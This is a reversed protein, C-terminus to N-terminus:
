LALPLVSGDFHTHYQNRLRPAGFPIIEGPSSGWRPIGPEVNGERKRNACGTLFFFFLFFFLTHFPEVLAVLLRFYGFFSDSQLTTTM